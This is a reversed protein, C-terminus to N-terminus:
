RRERLARRMIKGTVTMPLIETFAIQRPYEHAALRVRVFNQIEAALNESPTFEPKLVIWAKILETRILDPVGVVAAASVAPHKALCEEIEGPGVRYGASTILDDSRGVFYFYGEPDERALDGTLLYDGAFKKRTSTEDKWYNLFMVPDPRRVGVIGVEGPPLQVGDDDVIRVDHGPVARGMSGPRSPFLQADNSVIMNCETQGYFENITLGFTEKGWDILDEGLHEGGSAITRLHVGSNRVQARRMLRLATPPLFVNRVAHEAMLEMALEPDFKRARHALVPIGHHWSPLLVDLLGGIWAWDAPTWTLDGPQPLFHHSLEVGPLHGLLVRHAHLAGKPSGTTGSTYILLAPEDARTAVPTFAESARGIVTGFAVTGNQAMGGPPDCGVVYVRLLEPLRDRIAAIKALGESDTIIAKASSNALRHELADEGFLTFLPISILGAKFATIHSIATEPIQPLLVGIRDGRQLGDSRLVNAFRNSLKRIDDFTFRQCHRSDDVYILALHGTGDAHRDCADVGINYFEPIRWRFNRLLDDYHKAADM